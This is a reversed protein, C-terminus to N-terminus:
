FILDKLHHGEDRICLQLRKRFNAMARRTMEPPIERTKQRITAKLEEITKPKEEYVKAKLHGWLFFDCPALDPSRAPWPIDGRLSILRGPFMERLVQMSQTATHSPAGDQQFYVKANSFKRLKPKVFNKLMEVYRDSTVTVTEDGEEFFYPGWVGCDGVACWVTVRKCHLPKQHLKQPNSEAWYRFNQKNVFGSLHFHAEDSTIIVADPNTDLMELIEECCTMRKEMDHENLEQVIQIKYPHFKLDAHLIRRVSRDSISLAIAHKRASRSPSQLVSERVAEVNEISRITRPRGTPPQKKASGTEKFNRVWRQITNRSPLTANRDLKFHKKFSKETLIVSGNNKFFTEVAFARHTDTWDAM